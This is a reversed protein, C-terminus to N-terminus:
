SLRMQSWNSWRTIDLQVRFDLNPRSNDVKSMRLRENLVKEIKELDTYIRHPQFM